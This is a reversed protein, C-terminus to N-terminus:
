APKVTLIGTIVNLIKLYDIFYNHNYESLGVQLM